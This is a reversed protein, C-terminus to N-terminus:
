SASRLRTWRSLSCLAQRFIFSHGSLWLGMDWVNYVKPRKGNWLILLCCFGHDLWKCGVCLGFTGRISEQIAMFCLYCPKIFVMGEQEFAKVHYTLSLFSWCYQKLHQGILGVIEIPLHDPSEIDHLIDKYGAPLCGFLTHGSDMLHCQFHSTLNLLVFHVPYIVSVGWKMSIAYKNWYMQAFWEARRQGVLENDGSFINTIRPGM